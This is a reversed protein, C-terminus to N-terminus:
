EVAPMSRVTASRMAEEIQEDTREQPPRYQIPLKVRFTSGKGFESELEVDGGLLVSLEKVISLGLGTGEHERALPDDSRKASRGQRFKDFITEQDQLPIGIGTDCVVLAMTDNDVLEASVHVMGGEPTFKVANSLLNNLIQQIKAADQWLVPIRPDSEWTVRINKREALPLISGVQREILDAISFEQPQVDMRGSEIKALDLIDNILVLLHKGASQINQVYRKQRDTLNDASALVESFGLISNLPTRLEHSMTALFEDKIKNMEHLQLNAQALEELRADLDANVQRLEEQVTYLYRLMRNFAHSLDEFEDGTRIDARMELNGQAIADSVRKLHLVPRTIVYRVVLYVALLALVVKIFEATIVFANVRHLPQEVRELPLAIKVVGIMDGEAVKVVGAPTVRETHYHCDLCSKKALIAGYYHYEGRDPLRKEVETVGHELGRKLEEFAEYAVDDPPRKAADASVPDAKFLAAKYGHVDEPRLSSALKGILKEFEPQAEAWKWHHELLIPAVLMRGMMRNQNRVLRSTLHWYVAFTGLALLSLGTGFLLLCKLEFNTEGLLRKLTRYSM